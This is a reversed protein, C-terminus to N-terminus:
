VHARGIKIDVSRVVKSHVGSGANYVGIWGLEYTLFYTGTYFRASKTIAEGGDTVITRIRAGM